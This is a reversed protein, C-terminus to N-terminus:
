DLTLTLAGINFKPADGSGITKEPSLDGSHLTNTNGSAADSLFWKTLTGWSGSAEPFTLIAGNAKSGGTANPFNTNNNTITVRSYNNGVPEGTIVGAESVGTCLGLYLTTPASYAQGGFIHDLLKAELYDSFSM